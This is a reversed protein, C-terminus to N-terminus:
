SIPEPASKIKSIIDTDLIASIKDGWEKGLEANLLNVIQDILMGILIGDFLEAIFGFKISEELYKVVAKKKDASQLVEADQAMKEVCVIFGLSIIYMSSFVKPISRLTVKTERLSAIEKRISSDTDFNHEFYALLMEYNIEM